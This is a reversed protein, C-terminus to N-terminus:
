RNLVKDVENLVYKYSEELEQTTERNKELKSHVEVLKNYIKEHTLVLINSFKQLLDKEALKSELKKMTPTKTTKYESDIEKVQCFRHYIIYVLLGLVLGVSASIFVGGLQNVELPIQIKYCVESGTALMYTNMTNRPFNKSYSNAVIRSVDNVLKDDADIPFIVGYYVTHVIDSVSDLDCDNAKLYNAVPAEIVVGDLKGDKLDSIMVEQLDYRYVEVTAGFPEIFDVFEKYTGITAGNLDNQSKIKNQNTPLSLRSILVGIFAGFLVFSVLWYGIVLLRGPITRIKKTKLFFLATYTFYLAEKMGKRYGYPFEDNDKREIVWIMHAMIITLGLISMWTAWEFPELFLWFFEVKTNKVLVTLGSYYVPTSYKFDDLREYIYSIGAEAMLAKGEKVGNLMDDWPVCQIEYDVEAWNLDKAIENLTDFSFGSIITIGSSDETCFSIPPFHSTYLIHKCEVASLYLIFIILM